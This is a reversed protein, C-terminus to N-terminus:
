DCSRRFTQSHGSGTTQVPLSGCATPEPDKRWVDLRALTPSSASSRNERACPNQSDEGQRSMITERRGQNLIFSGGHLLIAEPKSSVLIAMSDSKRSSHRQDNNLRVVIYGDSNGELLCTLAGACALMAPICSFRSVLTVKCMASQDAAWM